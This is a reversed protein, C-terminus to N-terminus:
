AASSTGELVRLPKRAVTFITGYHGVYKRSADDPHAQQYWRMVVSPNELLVNSCDFTMQDPSFELEFGVDRQIQVYEEARETHSLCLDHTGILYGGPAIKTYAASLNSRLVSVGVEELVSISLVVDFYNDPISSPTEGLLERVFRVKPCYREVKESFTGDWNLINKFYHLQQDRDAGWVEHESQLQMMVDPNFGHGFELIRLKRARELIHQNEIFDMCAMVGYDKLLTNSVVKYEPYKLALQHWEDVTPIKFGDSRVRVLNQLISKGDAGDVARYLQKAKADYVRKEGGPINFWYRGFPDRGVLKAEAELGLSEATIVTEM